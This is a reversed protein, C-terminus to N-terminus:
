ARFMRIMGLIVAGITVIVIIPIWGPIDDTAAQMTATSNCAMSQQCETSNITGDGDADLSEIDGIQNKGESMILFAVTLVIAIVAISIVLSVLQDFQGRKMLKKSKPVKFM